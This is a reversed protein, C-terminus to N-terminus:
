RFKARFIVLFGNPYRELHLRITGRCLQFGMSNVADLCQNIAIYIRQVMTSTYSFIMLAACMEMISIFISFLVVNVAQISKWSKECSVGINASCLGRVKYYSPVTIQYRYRKGIPYNSPYNENYIFFPKSGPQMEYVKDIDYAASALLLLSFAFYVCLLGHM